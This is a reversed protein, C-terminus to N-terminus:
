CLDKMSPTEQKSCELAVVEEVAFSMMRGSYIHYLPLKGDIGACTQQVRGPSTRPTGGEFTCSKRVNM